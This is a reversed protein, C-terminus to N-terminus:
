GTTPALLDYADRRTKSYYAAGWFPRKELLVLSSTQLDLIVPFEVIAWHKPVYSRVFQILGDSIGDAIVVPYVVLSRGFGRPKRVKGELTSRVSDSGFARLQDPSPQSYVDSIVVVTEVIGFRTLKTEQRRAKLIAGKQPTEQRFGALQARERVSEVYREADVPFRYRV